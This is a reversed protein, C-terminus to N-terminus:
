TRHPKIMLYGAAGIALVIYAWLSLWLGEGITMTVVLAEAKTTLLKWFGLAAIAVCLGIAVWVVITHKNWLILVLGFLSLMGPLLYVAYSKLGLYQQAGVILEMVMAALKAQQSNALQPVQLGSVHRPLDELRPLEGTVKEAGRRITLTVRNVDQLLGDVTDRLPAAKRIKQVLDPEHTELRVWPLVFGVWVMVVSVGIWIPLLRRM